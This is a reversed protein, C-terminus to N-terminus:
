PQPDRGDGEDVRGRVLALLTTAPLDGALHERQLVCSFGDIVLHDARAAAARLRPLWQEEGIRRSLAEHGASFGFSGALGCCGGDVLFPEFGLRRLLELDAATAGDARAHCHPHVAVRPRARL